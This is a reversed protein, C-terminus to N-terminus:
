QVSDITGKPLVSAIAGRQMVVELDKGVNVVIFNDRLKTVRGLIGSATTVEDGITLKSMLDKHEKARKQQPRVLLFYFVAIFIILMPLMSLFGGASHQATTTVPEAYATAIGLLSLLSM